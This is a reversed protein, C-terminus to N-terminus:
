RKKRRKNSDDYPNVWTEAQTRTIAGGKQLRDCFDNFACRIAVKDAYVGKWLSEFEAVVQKKTMSM